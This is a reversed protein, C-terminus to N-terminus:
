DEKYSRPNTGQNPEGLPLGLSPPRLTLPEHAQSMFSVHCPLSSPFCLLGIIFPYDSHQNECHAKSGWGGLFVWTTLLHTGLAVWDWSALLSTNLYGEQFDNNPAARFTNIGQDKQRSHFCQCGPFTRLWLFAPKPLHLYISTNPTLPFPCHVMLM